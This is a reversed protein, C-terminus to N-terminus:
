ILKSKLDLAVLLESINTVHEFITGPVSWGQHFSIYGDSKSIFSYSGIIILLISFTVCFGSCKVTQSIQFAM